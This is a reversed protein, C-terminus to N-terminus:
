PTHTCITLVTVRKEKVKGDYTAAVDCSNESKKTICTKLNCNQTVTATKSRENQIQYININTSFKIHYIIFKTLETYQSISNVLIRRTSHNYNMTKNEPSGNSRSCHQNKKCSSKLPLSNHKELLKRRSKKKNGTVIRKPILM